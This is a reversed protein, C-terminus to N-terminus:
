TLKSEFDDYADETEARLLRYRSSITDILVTLIPLLDPNSDSENGAPPNSVAPSACTTSSFSVWTRSVGCYPKM